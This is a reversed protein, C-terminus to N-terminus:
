HSIASNVVEDELIDQRVSVCVCVCVCVCVRRKINGYSTGERKNM